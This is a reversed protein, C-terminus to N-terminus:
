KEKNAEYYTKVKARAKAQVRDYAEARKLSLALQEELSLM